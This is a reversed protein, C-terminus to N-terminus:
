LMQCVDFAWSAMYPWFAPYLGTNVFMSNNIYFIIFIAPSSLLKWNSDNFDSFNWNSIFQTLKSLYHYIKTSNM